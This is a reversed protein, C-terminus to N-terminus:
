RETTDEYPLSAVGFPPKAAPLHYKRMLRQLSSRHLGLAKAARSVIGAHEVLVNRLFERELRELTEKKWMHFGYRGRRGAGKLVTEPLDETTILPGKAFAVAREVANKLERVNGRWDYSMLHDMAEPTIGEIRPHHRSSCAELFHAALLPIDERRQRLPPIQIEIVAIRFYLDERFRGKRVEEYIDLNTAAVFRVNFTIPKIGGLRRAAGEEVARLLKAQLVPSLECVEDLFLTGGDAAELLGEKALQAGTFAGRDYGFLEAELLNQPIAACNLALFARRKRGNNEHLAKAVLEKGVGSEGLIMVHTDMSAIRLIDDRLKLMVKGQGVLGTLPFSSHLPGESVQCAKETRREELQNDSNEKVILVREM